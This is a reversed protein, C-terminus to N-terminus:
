WINRALRRSRPLCNRRFMPNRENILYLQRKTTLLRLDNLRPESKIAHSLEADSVPLIGSELSKKLRELIEKDHLAEKKGARAEAEVRWWPTKDV